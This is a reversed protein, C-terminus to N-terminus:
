MGGCSNSVVAEDLVMSKAQDLVTIIQNVSLGTGRVLEIVSYKNFTKKGNLQPGDYGRVLFDISVGFYDAVKQVRDIGPTNTDWKYMAGNSFGFDTELRKFTTGKERCLVQIREVMTMAVKM